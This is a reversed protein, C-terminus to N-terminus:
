GNIKPHAAFMWKKYTKVYKSKIEENNLQSQNSVYEKVADDRTQCTEPDHVSYAGGFPKDKNDPLATYRTTM